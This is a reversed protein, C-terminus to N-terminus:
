DRDRRDRQESELMSVAGVRLLLRGRRHLTAAVPAEGTWIASMGGRDAMECLEVYEDYLSEHSQGADLREM